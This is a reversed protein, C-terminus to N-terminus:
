DAHYCKIKITSLDGCEQDEVPVTSVEGTANDVCKCSDSDKECASMALSVGVVVFFLTFRKFM